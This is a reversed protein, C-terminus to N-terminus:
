INEEAALTIIKEKVDKVKVLSEVPLDYGSLSKRGRDYEKELLVAIGVAVARADSIIRLLAEQSSGSSLFDDVILVRDDPDLHDMAVLLERNMGVTKSTYSAHYCNSMVVTRQKRAYVCPVQLYKAIPIAVVLGTTAVTLVKTPKLDLFRHALEEACEDMLNVDVMSDMFKSVDVIDNPLVKADKLVKERLKKGGSRPVVSDSKNMKAWNQGWDFSGRLTAAIDSIAHTTSIFAKNCSAYELAVECLGYGYVEVSGDYYCTCTRFRCTRDPPSHPLLCSAVIDVHSGLENFWYASSVVPPPPPRVPVRQSASRPVSQSFSDYPADEMYREPTYEDVEFSTRSSIVPLGTVRYIERAMLSAADEISLNLDSPTGHQFDDFNELFEVGFKSFTDKLNCMAPPEVAALFTRTLGELENPATGKLAQLDAPSLTLDNLKASYLTCPALADEEEGEETGNSSAHDESVSGEAQFSPSFSVGSAGTKKLAGADASSVGSSLLDDASFYGGGLEDSQSSRYTSSKRRRAFAFENLSNLSNAYAQQPSLNERDAASSASVAAAAADFSAPYTSSAYVGDQGSSPPRQRDVDGGVFQGRDGDAGSFAYIDKLSSSSSSSFSERGQFYSPNRISGRAMAKADEDDMVSDLDKYARKGRRGCLSMQRVNPAGTKSLGLGFTTRLSFSFTGELALAITLLFLSKM